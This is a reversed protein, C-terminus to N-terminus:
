LSTMMARRKACSTPPGGAAAGRHLVFDSPSGADDAAKVIEYFPPSPPSNACSTPRETAERTELLFVGPLPSRAYRACLASKLHRRRLLTKTDHGNACSTRGGTPQNMLLHALAASCCPLKCSICM